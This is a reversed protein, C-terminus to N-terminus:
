KLNLASLISLVSWVVVVVVVVFDQRLFVLLTSKGQPVIVGVHTKRFTSPSVNKNRKHNVHTVM